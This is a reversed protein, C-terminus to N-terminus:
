TGFIYNCQQNYYPSPNSCAHIELQLMNKGSNINNGSAIDVIHNPRKANLVAVRRRRSFCVGEIDKLFVQRTNDM